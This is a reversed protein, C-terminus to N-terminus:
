DLECTMHMLILSRVINHVNEVFLVYEEEHDDHVETCKFPFEISITSWPHSFVAM